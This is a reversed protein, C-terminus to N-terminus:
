VRPYTITFLYYFHYCILVQRIYRRCDHGDDGHRKGLAFQLFLAALHEPRLPTKTYLQECDAWHDVVFLLEDLGHYAKTYRDFEPLVIAITSKYYGFKVPEKQCFEDIARNLTDYLPGPLVTGGFCAADLM